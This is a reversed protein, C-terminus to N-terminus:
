TGRSAPLGRRFLLYWLCFAGAAHSVVEAVALGALGLWYGLAATAVFCILMAGNASLAVARYHGLAQAAQSLTSVLAGSLIGFSFLSVVGAAAAIAAHTSGVILLGAILLGSSGFVSLWTALRQIGFATWVPSASTAIGHVLLPFHARRVFELVQSGAATIQRGYLFIATLGQGFLLSCIILQFRFSLQGPLVALLVSLGERVLDACRRWTASIRGPPRGVHWLALLQMTVAIGCGISLAAGLILGSQNASLGSAPLLAAGSCFYTAMGTVGSLGSLKLGDLIGGANFAWFVLAPTAATVYARAFDDQAGLAYLSAISAVTIAVCFRVISASWFCHRIEAPDGKIDAFAVRRAVSTVSGFDVIMLALVAFSFCTGFRALLELEGRSVLLTQVLFVSGQGMCFSAVLLAANGTGQWSLGRDGRTKPLRAGIATM